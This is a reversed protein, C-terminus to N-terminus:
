DELEDKLLKLLQKKESYSLDDLIDELSVIFKLIAM